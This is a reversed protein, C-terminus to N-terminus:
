AVLRLQLNGVFELSRIVDAVLFAVIERHRLLVDFEFGALGVPQGDRGLSLLLVLEECRFEETVGPDVLDHDVMELDVHLTRRVMEFEVLGSGDLDLENRDPRAISSRRLV